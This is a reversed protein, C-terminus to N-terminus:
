WFHDSILSLSLSLFSLSLSLSFFTILSSSILTSHPLRHSPNRPPRRPTPVYSYQLWLTPVSATTLPTAASRPTLVITDDFQQQVWFRGEMLVFPKSYSYVSLYRELNLRRLILFFAQVKGGQAAAPLFSFCSATWSSLPQYSSWNIEGVSVSRFESAPRRLLLLLESILFSSTFFRSFNSSLM